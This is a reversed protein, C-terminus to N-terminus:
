MTFVSFLKSSTQLGGIQLVYSWQSITGDEVRLVIVIAVVIGMSFHKGAFTMLVIPFQNKEGKFHEHAVDM